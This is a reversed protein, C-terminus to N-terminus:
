TLWGHMPKGLAQCDWRVVFNRPWGHCCPKPYLLCNNAPQQCTQKCEIRTRPCLRQFVRSQYFELCWKIDGGPARPIRSQYPVLYKVVTFGLKVYTVMDIISASQKFFSVASTLIPVLVSATWGKWLLLLFAASVNAMPPRRLIVVLLLGTIHYYICFAM